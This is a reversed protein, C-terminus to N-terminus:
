IPLTEEAVEDLMSIREGIGEAKEMSNGQSAKQAELLNTVHTDFCFAECGLIIKEYDEWTMIRYLRNLGQIRNELCMM